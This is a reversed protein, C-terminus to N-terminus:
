RCPTCALTVLPLTRSYILNLFGILDHRHLPLKRSGCLKAEVTTCRTCTHRHTHPAARLDSCARLENHLGPAITLPLM